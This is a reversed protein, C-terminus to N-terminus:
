YLTGTGQAERVVYDDVDGEKEEAGQWVAVAWERFFDVGIEM